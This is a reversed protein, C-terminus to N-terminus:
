CSWGSIGPICLVDYRCGCLRYQALASLVNVLVRVCMYACVHVCMCVYACVSTCVCSTHMDPQWVLRLLKLIHFDISDNSWYCCRCCSYLQVFNMYTSSCVRSVWYTLSSVALIYRWIFPHPLMISLGRPNLCLLCPLCCVAICVKKLVCVCVCV